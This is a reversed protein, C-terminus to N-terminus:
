RGARAPLRLEIRRWQADYTQGVVKAAPGATAAFEAAAGDFGVLDDDLGPDSRQSATSSPASM